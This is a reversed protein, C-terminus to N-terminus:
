WTMLIDMVIHGYSSYDKYNNEKLNMCIGEIITDYFSIKDKEVEM